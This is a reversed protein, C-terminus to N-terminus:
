PRLLGPFYIICSAISGPPGLFHSDCHGGVAIIKFRLDIGPEPPRGLKKDDIRLGLLKLNYWVDLAQIKGLSCSNL